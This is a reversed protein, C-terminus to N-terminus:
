VRRHGGGFEVPIDLDIYGGCMCFCFEIFKTIVLNIFFKFFIRSINLGVGCWM